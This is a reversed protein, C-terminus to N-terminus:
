GLAGKVGGGVISPPDQFGFAVFLTTLTWTVKVSWPMDALWTVHPMFDAICCDRAKVSERFALWIEAGSIEIEEKLEEKDKDEDDGEEEEEEEDRRSNM